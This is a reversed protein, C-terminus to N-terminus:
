LLIYLALMLLAGTIVGLADLCILLVQSRKGNAKVERERRRSNRCHNKRRNAIRQLVTEHASLCGLSKEM